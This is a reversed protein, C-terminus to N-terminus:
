CNGEFNRRRPLHTPDKGQMKRRLWATGQGTKGGRKAKGEPGAMTAIAIANMTLLKVGEGWKIGLTSWKRDETGERCEKRKVM